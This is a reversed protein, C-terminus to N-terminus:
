TNAVSHPALGEAMLERFYADLRQAAKTLAKLNSTDDPNKCEAILDDPELGCRLTFKHINYIYHAVSNPSGSREYKLYEALRMISQNRLAFPILKPVRSSLSEIINRQIDLTVKGNAAPKELTIPQRLKKNLASKEITLTEEAAM